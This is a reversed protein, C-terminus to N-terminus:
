ILFPPSKKLAFIDGAGQFRGCRVQSSKHVEFLVAPLYVSPLM